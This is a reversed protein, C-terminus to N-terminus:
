KRGRTISFPSVGTMHRALSLQWSLPHSSPYPCPGRGSWDIFFLLSATPEAGTGGRGGGGQTSIGGGYASSPTVGTTAGPWRRQRSPGARASGPVSHGTTDIGATVLRESNIPWVRGRSPAVARERPRSLGPPPSSTAAGGGRGAVSGLRLSTAPTGRRRWRPPGAPAGRGPPPQQWGGGCRGAGCHRGGRPSTNATARRTPPRGKPDQRQEWGARESQQGWRGAGKASNTTNTPLGSAKTPDRKMRKTSLVKRGGKGVQAETRENTPM